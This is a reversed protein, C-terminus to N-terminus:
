ALTKRPPVSVSAVAGEALHGRLAERVLAICSEAEAGLAEPRRAVVLSVERRSKLPLRALHGLQVEPEASVAPLIAIGVGCRIMSKITGVNDAVAGVNPQLGRDAFMSQVLAGYGVTPENIILPEAVIEALDVPGDAQALRHQPPVFLAMDVRSVTESQLPPMASHPRIQVTFGVDLVHQLVLRQVRPATSTVVELQMRALKPRLADMVPPILFQAIGSSLGISFASLPGRRLQRALDALGYLNNIAQEAQRLFIRGPQTIEIGRGTRRFLAFGLEDELLRVQESISPQSVLLRDAARSFSREDRVALAYRLQRDNM